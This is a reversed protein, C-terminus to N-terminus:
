GWSRRAVIYRLLAYALLFSFVDTLYRILGQSLNSNALGVLNTVTIFYLVPAMPSIQLIPIFSNAVLRLLYGFLFSISLFGVWGFNMFGEAMVSAPHGTRIVREEYIEEKIRKGLSIEPKAPWVSRPIPAFIWTILTEGLLYDMREPVSLIVATTSSVALGNGSEPLAMIPNRFATDGGGQSVNRLGTMVGFLLLIVAIGNIVHIAKLERYATYVFLIGYLISVLEGRKSAVFPIFSAVLFVLGLTVIQRLRLKPYQRLYFAMLILLLYNVIAAVMTIYGGGSYVVDGDSAIEIARKKGISALSFGGTSRLYLAIAALSILTGIVLGIKVGTDSIYTSRPIINEIRVRKRNIAYGLSILFISAVMYLAGLAYDDVNWDAMIYDRRPSDGFAIMASALVTGVVTPLLMFTLPDTIRIPRSMFSPLGLLAVLAIQGLSFLLWRPDGPFLAFSVTAALIGYITLLRFFGNLVM